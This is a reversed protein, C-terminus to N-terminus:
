VAKLLFSGGWEGIDGDALAIEVRRCEVGLYGDLLLEKRKSLNSSPIMRGGAAIAGLKFIDFGEAV